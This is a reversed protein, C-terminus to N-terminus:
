LASELNAGLWHSVANSQLSTERQSPALRFDARYSISPKTCAPLIDLADAISISCNEGTRRYMKEMGVLSQGGFPLELLSTLVSGSFQYGAQFSCSNIKMGRKIKFHARTITIMSLTLELNVGLWRSVDNCLLVTEWQSPAFRSDARISHKSVPSRKCVAVSGFFTLKDWVDCFGGLLATGIAIALGSCM